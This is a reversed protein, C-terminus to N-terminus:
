QKDERKTEPHGVDCDLDMNTNSGDDNTNGDSSLSEEIDGNPATICEEEDIAYLSPYAKQNWIAQLAIWDPEDYFEAPKEDVIFDTNIIGVITKDDQVSQMLAIPYNLEKTKEVRPEAQENIHRTYIARLRAYFDECDYSDESAVFSEVMRKTTEQSDSDDQFGKPDLFFASLPTYVSGKEGAQGKLLYPCMMELMGDTLLMVAALEDDYTDIVWQTYGARLPIVSVEDAGKQPKTIVVYDGFSNLGIIGGDGSHGYIIRRGDYIVLTLTTDYSELPEGTKDSERIIRKFAYNFATRIMSKIGIVSYDWPMLEDCVDVVTEAAIQSGIQANKASGVGDAIAAIIWGNEMRKIKHSDQCPLGRAVHSKGAISFGYDIIMRNDEIEIRKPKECNAYAGSQGRHWDM